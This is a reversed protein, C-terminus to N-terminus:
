PKSGGIQTLESRGAATGHAPENSTITLTKAASISHRSYCTHRYEISDSIAAAACARLRPEISDAGVTEEASRAAVRLTTTIGAMMDWGSSHGITEIAEIAAGVDGAIVSSVAHHLTEGVHGAAAARLFCASLPSTAGPLAAIIARALAAHADREGIADLLALAGVLFDDGSPTLGPGLGILGRVADACAMGQAPEDLVGSLWREFTAIRPRAVRALAQRASTEAVGSIHRALGEEPADIAARRELAVCTDILRVPSPCIPWAPPRWAESRDLILRISNGIVIHRDCVAVSQRPQLARDSLRGLHGILTLPGNGIGPEGVCIFEDGARLYFSREFVAELNARAHRRCFEQALMGSRLIPVVVDADACLTM